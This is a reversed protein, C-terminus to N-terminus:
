KRFSTLVQQPLMRPGSHLQQPTLQRLTGISAQLRPSQNGAPQMSLIQRSEARAFGNLRSFQLHQRPQHHSGFGGAAGNTLEFTGAGGECLYEDIAIPITQFASNHM